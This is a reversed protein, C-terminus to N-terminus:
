RQLCDTAPPSRDDLAPQASSAPEFSGLRATTEPVRAAEKAPRALDDAETPM